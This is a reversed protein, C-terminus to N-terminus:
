NTEGRDGGTPRRERAEGRSLRRRGGGAVAAAVGAAAGAFAVGRKVRPLELVASWEFNSASFPGKAEPGSTVL